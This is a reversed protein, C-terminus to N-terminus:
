NSSSITASESRAGLRGLRLDTYRIGGGPHWEMARLAATNRAGPCPSSAAATTSGACACVCEEEPGAYPLGHRVPGASGASATGRLRAPWAPTVRLGGSGWQFRGIARVEGLVAPPM